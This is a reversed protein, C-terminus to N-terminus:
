RHSDTNARLESLVLWAAVFGLPVAATFRTANSFRAFGAFETTWTVLTPLAAVALIGRARRVALAAGALLAVPAALAAGVYLGTCRACVPLQRGHLVFSREPRQHCIFTGIPFLLDPILFLAATWAVAAVSLIWLGVTSARV